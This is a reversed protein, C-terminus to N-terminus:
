HNARRLLQEYVAKLQEDKRCKNKITKQAHIVTSHERGFLEGIQMYSLDTLDKLLCMAIQRALVVQAKGRGKMTLQELSVQFQSCVLEQIWQGNAPPRPAEETNAPSKVQYNAYDYSPNNAYNMYLTRLEGELERVSRSQCNNAIDLAVFNPLNFNLAEAKHKLIAVRTELDPKEVNVTVGHAFRSTLREEFNLLQNPHKDSAFVVQKNNSILHNYINFLEFQSREKKSILQVDDILLADLNHFKHHFEYSSNFNNGGNNPKFIMAIVEQSFAEGSIYLVKKLGRILMENGIAHLLHSKGLGAQGYILLPNSFNQYETAVARAAIFASENSHGRVFNDFRYEGNLNTAFSPEEKKVVAFIDPLAELEIKLPKTIGAQELRLKFTEQLIDWHKERITKLSYKNPAYLVVANPREEAVLTRMILQSDKSLKEGMHELAMEWIENIQNM